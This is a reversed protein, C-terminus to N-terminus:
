CHFQIENEMPIAVWTDKALQVECWKQFYVTFLSADDLFLKCESKLVISM